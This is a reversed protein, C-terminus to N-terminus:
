AGGRDAYSSGVLGTESDVVIVTRASGFGAAALTRWIDRPAVKRDAANEAYVVVIM